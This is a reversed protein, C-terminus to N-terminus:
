TSFRKHESQKGHLSHQEIQGFGMQVMSQLDDEFFQPAQFIFKSYAELVHSFALLALEFSQVSGVKQM